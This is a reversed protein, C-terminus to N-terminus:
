GVRFSVTKRAVEGTSNRAVIMADYWGPDADYPVQETLTYVGDGAAEDGHTGDDYMKLVWDRPDIVQVSQIDASSDVKCFVKADKGAMLTDPVIKTDVIHIAM